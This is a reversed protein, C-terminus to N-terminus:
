RPPLLEGRPYAGTLQSLEEYTVGQLFAKSIDTTCIPWGRHAAESCVLRQSYRQSTGAYSDLHHADRDKFGRVTLRARIVRKTSAREGSQQSADAVSTASVEHKWKIVWRCDIINKADKRLRRSFCKLKAWTLLEKLMAAAVEKAHIRLEEATLTDDDRQVVTRRVGTLFIQQVIIEGVRPERPRAHVLKTATGAFHIEVFTEEVNCGDTLPLGARQNAAIIHYNHVIDESEFKRPSEDSVHSGPFQDQTTPQHEDTREVEELCTLYAQYAAKKLIPEEQHFYENTVDSDTQSSSEEPITPLREAHSSTRPPRPESGAGQNQSVTNDDTPPNDQTADEEQEEEQNEIVEKLEPRVMLFQAFRVLTWKEPLFQKLNLSETAEFTYTSVKSHQTSDWWLLLSSDYGKIPPLCSVKRGYRVAVCNDLNLVKTAFCLLENLENSKNSTGSTKRWKEKGQDDQTVSWGLHIVQNDNAKDVIVKIDLLTGYFHTIAAHTAAELALFSIHRRVEGLKCIIPRGQHSISITGKNYTSVDVVKAPGTWGSVDKNSPPRYFDVEEGVQYNEAEGPALTKTNLARGLRARATGEIMQQIAIERLRHSNRMLGPYPVGNPDQLADQSNPQDIPPLLNPTRGYVANYPTTNNVSVLANGAFTAEALRYTFPIDTIGEIQLQADIKHLVDRLLQGRREIHPAHQQPARPQLKIGLRTLFSGARFSEAIGREGDIILEKMPGHITIWCAHLARLLEGETKNAIELTAHWRTCRDILHFVIFEEYFLLDCEVQENFQGALQISAISRPLPKAWKRCAACTEVIDPIMDLVAKPLGARELLRTMATTSAHWWRLHLKRILKRQTAPGGTRMARLVNGVDFSVWDNPHPNGVAQDQYTRRTRSVTDPGRSSSAPNGQSQETNELDPQQMSRTPDDSARIRPERPAHGRRPASARSKVISQRCEGPIYTHSDHNKHRNNQCGVCEWVIPNDYPYACEGVKRSHSM